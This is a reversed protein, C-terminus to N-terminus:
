NLTGEAFLEETTFKKPIVHQDFALQIITELTKHNTSVGFPFPDGVVQKIALATEDAASLNKGDDLHTLYINKAAQLSNFIEQALGPIDKLLSDKVVLTHNIPYVGTKRFYAFGASRADSILPQIDPSNLRIDGVAAAIKGSLLLDGISQGRYSYDVNAPAQYEAVHEDDTPVWTIKDLDVGYESHLIGRAWVGTTVTYGRNVGITRGELDKPIKIPSNVNYFIAGHHFGRSVFVPIATIPKGHAKACLYTALAMECIDFELGRVMRRMAAVIPDVQIFEVNQSGLRVRGDKLPKTLGHNGIAITLSPVQTIGAPNASLISAEFSRSLSQSMAALGAFATVPPRSFRMTCCKSRGFLQEGESESGQARRRIGFGPRQRVQSPMAAVLSDVACPSACRSPSRMAPVRAQRLRSELESGWGGHKKCAHSFLVSPRDLGVLMDPCLLQSLAPMNNLNFVPLNNLDFAPVNNLNFLICRPSLKRAQLLSGQSPFHPESLLLPQALIM